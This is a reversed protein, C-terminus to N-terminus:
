PRKQGIREPMSARPQGLRVFIASVRTGITTDDDARLSVPCMAIFHRGIERMEALPLALTAFRRGIGLAANTPARRAPEVTSRALQPLPCHLRCRAIDM